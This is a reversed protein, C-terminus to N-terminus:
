HGGLAPPPPLPPTPTPFMSPALARWDEEDSDSMVAPKNENGYGEFRINMASCLVVGGAVGMLLEKNQRLVSPCYKGGCFCFGVLLLVLLLLQNM